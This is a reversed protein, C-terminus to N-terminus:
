VVLEQVIEVFKAGFNSGFVDGHHAMIQAIAAHRRISTLPRDFGALLPRNFVLWHRLHVLENGLPGSPRTPNSAERPLKSGHTNEM